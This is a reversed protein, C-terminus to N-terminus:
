LSDIRRARFVWPQARRHAIRFIVTILSQQMSM